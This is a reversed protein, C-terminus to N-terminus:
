SSLAPRPTNNRVRSKASSNKGHRRSSAHGFKTAAFPSLKKQRSLDRIIRKYSPEKEPQNTNAVLYDREKELVVVQKAFRDYDADKKLYEDVLPGPLGPDATGTGRCSLCVVSCSAARNGSPSGLLGVTSAGLFPPRTMGETPDAQSAVELRAKRLQSQVSLLESQITHLEKWAFEQKVAM